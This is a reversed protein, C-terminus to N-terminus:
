LIGIRDLISTFLVDFFGLYVSLAGSIIVVLVSLVAVERAGPWDMKKFENIISRFYNKINM